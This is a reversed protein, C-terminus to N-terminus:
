CQIKKKIYELKTLLTQPNNVEIVTDIEKDKFFIAGSTGLIRAQKIHNQYDKIIKGNKLGDFVDVNYQSGTAAIILLVSDNMNKYILDAYAKNCAICSNEELIILSNYQSLNEQYHEKVLFAIKDYASLNQKCGFLFLSSVLLCWKICKM